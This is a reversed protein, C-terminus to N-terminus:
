VGADAVAKLVPRLSLWWQQLPRRYRLDMQENLHALDSATVKSQVLGVYASDDTGAALQEGLLHLARSVLRAALLRDFPSPNGGQQIHGLVGQRVDYAGHGEQELLRALFDTTYLANAEENRVALFLKRNGAFSQRLWAVDAALSDLSIGEEHLWVREAGGALGGMMALYGCYRGM